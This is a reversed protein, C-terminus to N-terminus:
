LIPSLTHKYIGVVENSSSLSYVGSLTNINPKSKGQFAITKETLVAWIICMDNHRLFEVLKDRKFYLNYKHSFCVLENKKDYLTNEYKKRHIKWGLQKALACQIKESSPPVENTTFESTRFKALINPYIERIEGSNLLTAVAEQVAKAEGLELLERM